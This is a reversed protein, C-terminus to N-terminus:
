AQRREELPRPSSKAAKRFGWYIKFGVVGLLLYPMGVM